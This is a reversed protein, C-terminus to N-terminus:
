FSHSNWRSKENSVQQKRHCLNGVGVRNLGDTRREAYVSHFLSVFFPCRLLEVLMQCWLWLYCRGLAMGCTGHLLPWLLIWLYNVTFKESINESEFLTLKTNPEINRISPESHYIDAWSVSLKSQQAFM